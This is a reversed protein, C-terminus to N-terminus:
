VEIGKIRKKILQKDEYMNKDASEIVQSLTDGKKFAIAGISFSIRFMTDHAKLKKKLVNERIENLIKIASKLTHKTDFVILFEDGGYRIINQKSKKLENAIFILVKDGLIHGHTDNIQKFYNLDIMALIGAKLFTNEKEVLLRDHLWKRNYAHTLEDRYVAEKLKEIEEKLSQTEKLVESLLAEDKDKIAHLAKNTTNSLQSANKSTQSQLHSLTTCETELIDYALKPEHEISEGHESAYQTFISAYISPTVIRMQDISNKTENSIVHLIKKDATLQVDKM